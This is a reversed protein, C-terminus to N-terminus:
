PVRRSKPDAAVKQIQERSAVKGINDLLFARIRDRVSEQRYRRRIVALQRPNAAGKDTSRANEPNTKRRPMLALM